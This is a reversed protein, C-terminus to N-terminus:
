DDTKGQAHLWERGFRLNSKDTVNGFPTYDWVCIHTYDFKKPMNFIASIISTIKHIHTHVNLTHTHQM